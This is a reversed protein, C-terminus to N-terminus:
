NFRHGLREYLASTRRAVCEWRTSEAYRTLRETARRRLDPDALVSDIQGAWRKPNHTPVCFEPGLLGAVDAFKPSDSVMVLSRTALATHLVGSASGYSQWYPLLVLDAAAFYQYAKDQPVYGVRMQVRDELNFRRVMSRLARLYAQNFWARNQLSGVVMLRPRPGGPALRHMAAIITHLNKQPHIFGFALLMPGEYGDNVAEKARAVEPLSIQSTGHPIVDIRDTPVGARVLADVATRRQHVVLADCHAALSEYCKRFSFLREVLASRATHVTHLTVVTMAGSCRARRCLEGIRADMGFLSPVHQVHLVDPRIVEVEHAISQVWDETRKWVRRVPVDKDEGSAQSTLREAVIIVDHEQRELNIALNKTYTAIGCPEPPFTSCLAIKM